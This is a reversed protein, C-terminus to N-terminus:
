PAYSLIRTFVTSPTIAPLMQWQLVGGLRHRGHLNTITLGEPEANLASRRVSIIVAPRSLLKPHQHRGTGIRIAVVEFTDGLNLSLLLQTSGMRSDRYFTAGTVAGCSLASGLDVGVIGGQRGSRQRHATAASIDASRYVLLHTGSSTWVWRGDPGAEVWMAKKIQRPALNVYYRFRLTVPDVVGLAGVGCTNGGTQPHYCELPLVIRAKGADFSLDGAHNYGESTRPIVSTNAGDQRLHADTRYVGSNTPSSVGDFFLRERAGGFAVGQNYAISATHQAVLHWGALAPAAGWTLGGACVLVGAWWRFWPVRFLRRVVVM